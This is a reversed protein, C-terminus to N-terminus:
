DGKEINYLNYTVVLDAFPFNFSWFTIHSPLLDGVFLPGGFWCTSCHKRVKYPSSHAPFKYKVKGNM